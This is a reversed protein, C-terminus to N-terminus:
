DFPSTHQHHPGSNESHLFTSVFIVYPDYLHCVFIALLVRHPQVPNPSILIVEQNRVHKEELLKSTNFLLTLCINKELNFSVLPVHCRFANCSGLHIMSWLSFFIIFYTPAIPMHVIFWIFNSLLIKMDIDYKRFKIITSHNYLCIDKNKLFVHQLIFCCFTWVYHHWLNQM